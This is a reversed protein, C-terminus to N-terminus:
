PQDEDESNVADEVRGDSRMFAVIWPLKLSKMDGMEKFIVASLDSTVRFGNSVGHFRFLVSQFDDQIEYDVREVLPSFVEAM